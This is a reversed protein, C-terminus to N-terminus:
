VALKLVTVEYGFTLTEVSNNKKNLWMVPAQDCLVLIGIQSRRTVKDSAHYADEFCHTFMPKGRPQSMDDPIKEKADQYFDEWDFKHSRDKSISPSM